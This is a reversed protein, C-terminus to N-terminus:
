RVWNVPAADIRSQGIRVAHNQVVRVVLQNHGVVAVPSQVMGVAIVVFHGLFNRDRRSM